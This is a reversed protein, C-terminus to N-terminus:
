HPRSLKGLGSPAGDAISGISLGLRRHDHECDPEHDAVIDLHALASLVRKVM